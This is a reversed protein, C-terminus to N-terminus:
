KYKIIVCPFKGTFYIGDQTGDIKYSLDRLTFAQQHISRKIKMFVEQIHTTRIYVRSFYLCGVKKTTYM